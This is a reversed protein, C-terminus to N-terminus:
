LLRLSSFPPPSSTFLKDVTFLRRASSATCEGREVSQATVFAYVYVYVYMYIHIHIHRHVHVHLNIHINCVYMCVYMCVHM